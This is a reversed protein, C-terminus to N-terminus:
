DRRIVCMSGGLATHMRWLWQPTGTERTEIRMMNAHYQFIQPLKGKRNTQKITGRLSQDALSAELDLHWDSFIEHFSPYAISVRASHVHAMIVPTNSEHKNKDDCALSTALILSAYM